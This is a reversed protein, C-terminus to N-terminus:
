EQEQKSKEQDSEDQKIPTDDKKHAYESKTKLKQRKTLEIYILIGTVFVLFKVAVGLYLFAEPFYDLTFRYLNGYIVPGSFQLIGKFLEMVCFVKAIETNPVVSIIMSRMVTTTTSDLFGIGFAFYLVWTTTLMAMIINKIMSTIADTFRDIDFYRLSLNTISLGESINM